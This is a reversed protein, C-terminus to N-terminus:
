AFSVLRSMEVSVNQRPPDKGPMEVLCCDGEQVGCLKRRVRRVGPGPLTMELPEESVKHQLGAVDLAVFWAGARLVSM